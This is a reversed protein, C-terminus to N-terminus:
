RRKEHGGSIALSIYFSFDPSYLPNEEKMESGSAMANPREYMVRANPPLGTSLTIGLLSSFTDPGFPV